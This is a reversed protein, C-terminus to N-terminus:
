VTTLCVVWSVASNVQVLLIDLMIQLKRYPATRLWHNRKMGSGANQKYNCGYRYLRKVYTSLPLRNINAPSFCVAHWADISFISGSTRRLCGFRLDVTKALSDAFHRIRFQQPEAQGCFVFTRVFQPWRVRKPGFGEHRLEIFRSCFPQASIWPQRETSRESREEAGANLKQAPEQWSNQSSTQM